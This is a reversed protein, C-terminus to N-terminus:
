KGREYQPLKKITVKGDDTGLHLKGDYELAISANERQCQLNELKLLGKSGITIDGNLVLLDEGTNGYITLQPNFAM